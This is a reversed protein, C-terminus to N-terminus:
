QNNTEEASMINQAKAMAASFSLSKDEEMLADIKEKLRDEYTKPTDDETFSERKAKASLSKDTGLAVGNTEAYLVMDNRIDKKLEDDQTDHYMKARRELASRHDDSVQVSAEKCVTDVLSAIETTKMKEKMESNETELSAKATKLSAVLNTKEELQAKLNTVEAKMNNIVPLADGLKADAKLDCVAFLEKLEKDMPNDTKPKNNAKPLAKKPIRLKMDASAAIDLDSASAEVMEEDSDKDVEVKRDAFGERVADDANFFTEADMWSKIKDRSKGTREAYINEMSAQLKEIQESRNNMERHDGMALGKANHIMIWAAEDIEIEGDDAANIIISAASAAIGVVRMTVKGGIYNKFLGYIAYGEFMDGGKSFINVHIDGGGENMVRSLFRSVTGANFGLERDMEGVTGYLFLEHKKDPHEPM